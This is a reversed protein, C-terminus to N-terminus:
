PRNDKVIIHACHELLVPQPDDQPLAQGALVRPQGSDIFTNGSIEGGSVLRFEIARKGSNIFRNGQVTLDSLLPTGAKHNLSQFGAALAVGDPHIAVDEFINDLIRIGRCIGGENRTFFNSALVIGSGIRTFRSNRLTGGNGGQILFRQYCDRFDCDRVEWGNNQWRPNEAVARALPAADRDLTLEPHNASEVLATGLPTGTQSDYFHLRDGPDAPMRSDRHLTITRGSVKEIYGWLGNFNILDDTTHLMTCGDLTSGREMCGSLFGDSGQWHCTGPRPGFYCNKWLHGGSGGFERVGGKTIYNKVGIFKMEACDIVGIATTSTRLLCFGDGAQLTGSKGYARMWAPNNNTKLLESKDALVVWFRGQVTGPEVSGFALRGPSSVQLSYFAACFTGDGKFPVLRGGTNGGTKTLDLTGQTAEIEIRNGETDIQTIRGEMCGRPDRDLTAGALTVHSCDVFGLAFHNSPWPDPPLDFWFTVGEAIIRFPKAADRKMGRFELPYVPGDKSWTEKGFRYDGPPLTVSDVGGEFAKRVMPMVEKGRERQTQKEADTFRPGVPADFSFTAGIPSPSKSALIERQHPSLHGPAEAAQLAAPPALLLAALITLAHKTPVSNLNM